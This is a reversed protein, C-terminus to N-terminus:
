VPSLFADTISFRVDDESRQQASGIGLSTLAM